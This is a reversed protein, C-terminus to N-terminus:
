YTNEFKLQAGQFIKQRYFPLERNEARRKFRPSFCAVTQPNGAQKTREGM